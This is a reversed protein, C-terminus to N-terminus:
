MTFPLDDAPSGVGMVSGASGVVVTEVNDNNKLEPAEDPNNPTSIVFEKTKEDYSVISTPVFKTEKLARGNSDTKGTPEQVKKVLDKVRFGIIKVIGAELADIHAIKSKLDNELKAKKEDMAAKVKAVAQDVKTQYEADLADIQAQIKNKQKDIPDIAKAVARVSQYEFFSIRKEM